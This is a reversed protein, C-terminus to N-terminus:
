AQRPDSTWIIILATARAPELVSIWVGEPTGNAQVEYFDGGCWGNPDQVLDKDPYTKQKLDEEVVLGINRSLYLLRDVGPVPAYSGPDKKGTAPDIAGSGPDISSFFCSQQQPPWYSLGESGLNWANEPFGATLNFEPNVGGARGSIETQRAPDFGTQSDQEELGDDAEDFTEEPATDEPILEQTQTPDPVPPAATPPPASQQPPQLQEPPPETPPEPVPIDSISLIDVAEEETPPEEEEVVEEDLNDSTPLPMFLLAVHLILSIGMLPAILWHWRWPLKHSQRAIASQQEPKRLADQEPM